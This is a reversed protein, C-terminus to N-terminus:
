GGPVMALNQDIHINATTVERGLLIFIFRGSPSICLQKLNIWPFRYLEDTHFSGVGDLSKFVRYDAIKTFFTVFRRLRKKLRALM